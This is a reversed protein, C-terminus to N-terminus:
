LQLCGKLKELGRRVWAKATGLPASLQQALESHSFGQFYALVLSRRQNDDLHELCQNLRKADADAIAQELPETTEAIINEWEEPQLDVVGKPQRRLKDLCKNRVITSLWTQASGKDSLFSPASHWISVFADQLADEALDKRKLVLLALGYLKPSSLQYLREFARQDGLATKSLLIALDDTM